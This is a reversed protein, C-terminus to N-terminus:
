NSGAKRARETEQAIVRLSQEEDLEVISVPDELEVWAYFM